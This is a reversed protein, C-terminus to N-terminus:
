KKDFNFVDDATGYLGDKGASLLIFTDENYPKKVIDGTVTSIQTNLIMREFDGFDDLPNDSLPHIAGSEPVGLLMLERNDPYYYIDDLEANADGMDQAHFATRAKYYLIPM